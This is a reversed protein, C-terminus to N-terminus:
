NKQNSTCPFFGLSQKTVQKTNVLRPNHIWPQPNHIWHRASSLSRTKFRFGPSARAHGSLGSGDRDLSHSSPLGPDRRRPRGPPRCSHRTRRSAPYREKPSPPANGLAVCGSVVASPQGRVAGYGTCVCTYVTARQRLRVDHKKLTESVCACHSAFCSLRTACGDAESRGGVEGVSAQLRQTRGRTVWRLAGPVFVVCLLVRCYLTSWIRHLCTYVTARQRLRVDHKENM